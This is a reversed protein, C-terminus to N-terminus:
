QGRARIAYSIDEAAFRLGREMEDEHLKSKTRKAYGYAIGACAEREEAVAARIALTVARHAACVPDIEGCRCSRMHVDLAREEPTM